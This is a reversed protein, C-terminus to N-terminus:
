TGTPASRADSDQACAAVPAALPLVLAGRRTLGLAGRRALMSTPSPPAGALRGTPIRRLRKGTQM